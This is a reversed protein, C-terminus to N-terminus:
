SIFNNDSLVSTPNPPKEIWAKVKIEVKVATRRLLTAPEAALLTSESLLIDISQPQTLRRATRLFHDSEPTIYGGSAFGTAAAAPCWRNNTAMPQHHNASREMMPNPQDVLPWLNGSTCHGIFEPSNWQVYEPKISFYHAQMKERLDQGSGILGYGM